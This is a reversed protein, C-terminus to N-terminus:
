VVSKRDSGLDGYVDAAEVIRLMEEVRALTWLEPPKKTSKRRAKLVTPAVPIERGDWCGSCAGRNRTALTRLSAGCGCLVRPALDPDDMAERRLTPMEGRRM